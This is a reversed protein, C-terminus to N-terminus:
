GLMSQAIHALVLVSASAMMVLAAWSFIGGARQFLESGEDAAVPASLAVLGICGAFVHLFVILNLLNGM